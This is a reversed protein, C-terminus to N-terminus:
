RIGIMHEAEGREGSIDGHIVKAFCEEGGEQQQEVQDYRGHSMVEVIRGTGKSIVVDKSQFVHM